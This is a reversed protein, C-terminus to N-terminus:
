ALIELLRSFYDPLPARFEMYVGTRPHIFGLIGAHLTQGQLGSVPCKAPGYLADGLLPHHISAMHVRIQHTRGTELRCEVHTYQKLRKLVRYHTVANRGRNYNISMKKREVPHRGIPADITGEDEKLVGHVIAEYRRTMSHEKLQAAISNHAMDNKCAIIVGTTDMDIRHVIGPRMVGNIGSLQDRCHYMLGNVLTGTYHGAAPHVVMGKPKNILLVDEDEYLIDLDMPEAVIEPMIAEPVELSIMDEEEVVYSAKVPRGNVLVQGAKLLKQIYSRSIDECELSLYKDIRVDEEQSGVYFEQKM